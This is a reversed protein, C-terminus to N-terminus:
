YPNSLDSHLFDSALASYTTDGPRPALMWSLKNIPCIWPPQLKKSAGWSLDSGHRRGKFRALDENSQGIHHLPLSATNHILDLNKLLHWSPISKRPARLQRTFLLFIRVSGHPHFWRYTRWNVSQVSDLSTVTRVLPCVHSHLHRADKPGATQWSCVVLHGWEDTGYPAYSNDLQARGQNRM